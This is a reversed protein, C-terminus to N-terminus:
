SRGKDARCALDSQCRSTSGKLTEPQTVGNGVATPSRHTNSYRGTGRELRHRSPSDRQLQSEASPRLCINCSDESSRHTFTRAETERNQTELDAASKRVHEIQAPIPQMARMRSQLAFMNTEIGQSVITLDPRRKIDFAARSAKLTTIQDKLDRLQEAQEAHPLCRRLRHHATLHWPRSASSPRRRRHWSSTKLLRGCLM